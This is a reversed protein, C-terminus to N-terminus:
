AADGAFVFDSRPLQLFLELVSAHIPIQSGDLAHKFGEALMEFYLTVVAAFRVAKPPLFRRTAHRHRVERGLLRQQQLQRLFVQAVQQGRAEHLGHRAKKVLRPAVEVAVRVVGM